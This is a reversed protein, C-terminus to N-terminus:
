TLRHIPFYKDPKLLRIKVFNSHNPETSFHPCLELLRDQIQEPFFDQIIIEEACCGSLLKRDIESNFYPFSYGVIILVKTKSLIQKFDTIVKSFKQYKYGEGEWAFNFTEFNAPTLSGYSNLKENFWKLYNIVILPQNLDTREIYLDYVTETDYKLNSYIATGNLKLCSFDDETIELSNSFINENPYINFLSRIQNINFRVFNKIALELQLDYNWTIFKIHEKLRIGSGSNYALSAILNDYRKDLNQKLVNRLDNINNIFCTQELFFYSILARKLRCLELIDRALFYKRALTDVTQHNQAENHLWYLDDIVTKLPAQLDNLETYKKPYPNVNNPGSVFQMLYDAVQCLRPTLGDISPIAEASAGAGLYYVIQNKPSM